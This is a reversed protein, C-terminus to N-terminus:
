VKNGPCDTNPKKNIISMLGNKQLREVITNFKKEGWISIFKECAAQEADKIHCNFVALYYNMTLSKLDGILV